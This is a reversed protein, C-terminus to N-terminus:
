QNSRGRLRRSCGSCSKRCSTLSPCPFLPPASPPLCSFPPLLHPLSLSLPLPLCLPSSLLLSHPPSPPVLFSPPPPLPPFVPPPPSPPAPDSPRPHLPPFSLPLPPVAPLPSCFPCSPFILSAPRPSTVYQHPHQQLPLKPVCLSDGRSHKVAAAAAKQGATRVVQM